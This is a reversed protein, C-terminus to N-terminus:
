SGGGGWGWVEMGVGGGWFFFFFFFSLFFDRSWLPVVSVFGFEAFAASLMKPCSLSYTQAGIRFGAVM